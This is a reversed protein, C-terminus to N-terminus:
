LRAKEPRVREEYMMKGIGETPIPRAEHHKKGHVLYDLLQGILGLADVQDDNVGAPFSLLESEFATRWPASVPVYLGCTATRGRISQARVAKDHRSAFATRTCYAGRERARRSLWPGVGAEIQGKEEAWEEPKWKLVLDCWADVWKDSSAQARWIDLVYMNGDADVGVVIHVTYDGDDSTVAYDSAGYVRLSHLPPPSECGRIWARQFYAGEPPVPRQQYLASWVRSDRKADSRQLDTFWEPWLPQGIKRGLPDDPIDAEMPLSLVTWRHPELRLLRGALDDEHWRTTVYAVRGNPMLRPVLDSVWWDWHNERITDSDADKRSKILDDLFAYHARNGSIGGGVGNCFWEMGEETEFQGASKSDRKLNLGLVGRHASIINRIKRGVKKHAFEATHSAGIMTCLRPQGPEPPDHFLKRQAFWPPALRSVYTTKASGPPMCVMLRDIEGRQLAELKQILLRHHKAPEYGCHRAWATLSGRIERCKREALLEKLRDSM